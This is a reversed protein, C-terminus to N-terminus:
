AFLFDKSLNVLEEMRETEVEFESCLRHFPFPSIYKDSEGVRFGTLVNVLSEDHVDVALSTVNGSNALQVRGLGCEGIPQEPTSNLCFLPNAWLPAIICSDQNHGILGM